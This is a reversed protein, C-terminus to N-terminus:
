AVTRMKAMDVETNHVLLTERAYYNNPAYKRQGKPMMAGDVDMVPMHQLHNLMNKAGAPTIAYGQNGMFQTTDVEATQQFCSYQNHDAMVDHQGRKIGCSGQRENSVQDWYGFKYMDWDAPLKSVHCMVENIWNGQKFDVDDEIVFYVDQHDSANHKIESAIHKLMFWHSFYTALKKDTVEKNKYGTSYMKLGDKAELNRAEQPKVAPWREIAFKATWPKLKKEMMDRHQKATDKNIYYIKKLQTESGYGPEKMEDEHALRMPSVSKLQRVKKDHQCKALGANKRTDFNLALSTAALALLLVKSLM